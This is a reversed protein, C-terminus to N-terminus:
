YRVSFEKFIEEIEEWSVHVDEVMSGAPGEYCWSMMEKISEEEGQVVIEVSGDGLNKVWGVLGLEEAREQTNARYFVGQVEGYIKLHAQKKM